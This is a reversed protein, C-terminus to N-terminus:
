IRNRGQAERKARVAAIYEPKNQPTVRLHFADACIEVEGDHQVAPHMHPATASCTPCHGKIERRGDLWNSSM